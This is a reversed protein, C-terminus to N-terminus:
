LTFQESDLPDMYWTVADKFNKGYAKKPRSVRNRRTKDAAFILDTKFVRNFKYALYGQQRSIADMDITTSVKEEKEDSESDDPDSDSDSSSDSDNYTIGAEMYPRVCAKILLKRLPHHKGFDAYARHIHVAKLISSTTANKRAKKLTDELTTLLVTSMGQIGLRTSLVLLQIIASIFGSKLTPVGGFSVNRCVMYQIVLDFFICNVDKLDMESAAPQKGNGELRERFYPSYEILLGQPIERTQEDALHITVTTSTLHKFTSRLSILLRLSPSISSSQDYRVWQGAEPLVAADKQNDHFCM